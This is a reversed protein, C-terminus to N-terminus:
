QAGLEALRKKAHEEGLIATKRYWTITQEQDQTVGGQGNEHLFGIFEMARPDGADAAKRIWDRAQQINKSVGEGALYMSGINYMV